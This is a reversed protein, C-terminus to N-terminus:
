DFCKFLKRAEIIEILEITNTGCTLGTSHIDSEIALENSNNYNYHIQTVNFYPTCKNPKTILVNFGHKSDTKIELENVPTIINGNINIKM